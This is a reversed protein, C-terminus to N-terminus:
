RISCRMRLTEWLFFLHLLLRKGWVMTLYSTQTLSRARPATQTPSPDHQIRPLLQMYVKAKTQNSKYIFRKGELNGRGSAQYEERWRWVTDYVLSMSMRCRVKLQLSTDTYRDDQRITRSGAGWGKWLQALVEALRDPLDNSLVSISRIAYITRSFLNRGYATDIYQAFSSNLIKLLAFGAAVMMQLVYNTAYILYSGSTSGLNFACELFEKTAFWLSLVSDRYDSASPAAFFASLHLHLCAAHFYLMTFTSTSPESRLVKELDRFDHALFSTTISRHHDDDIGAINHENGYLAKTARNSLREISLRHEVEVPLKMGEDGHNTPALIWDYVSMPPQGYGTAVRQAVASCAAWTRVRDKLEEERLEIRFRAFDQAHSPKHLGIQMATQITLGTLMFTPDSSSSSIPLPWSLLLCFAKVTVHSQPVDSVTSWLLKQLPKSLSQLLSRDKDQRAAVSIIVWFLLM